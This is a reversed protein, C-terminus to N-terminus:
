KDKAKRSLASSTMSGALGVTRKELSKSQDRQREREVREFAEDPIELSMTIGLESLVQMARGIQATEKGHELDRMYVHSVGASGALDDQRVGSAKRVARVVQGLDSVNTIRYQKM